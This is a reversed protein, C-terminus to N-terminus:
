TIREILEICMRANHYPCKWFGVRDDVRNAVGLVSKEIREALTKGEAAQAKISWYWEGEPSVIYRKIFRWCERCIDRWWDIHTLQYQNYCGVVTEAQVWWHRDVDLHLNGEDWEYVMGRDRCYGEMAANAMLKSVESCRHILHSDTLVEAAEVILWSAEIDHGYSQITSSPNWNEDFFLQLHGNEAVIKELFIHILNDLQCKLYDDKWVRYLNTYAELIHLHTNMSKADNQDKESLRMDALAGWERDFAELYGDRKKDFSHEEIAYFLRKACELSERDQSARYHESLAYITFAIAYVQKKTDLPNMTSDLSWFVGGHQPDCFKEVIVNRARLAHTLYATRQQESFLSQYRESCALRYASAFTWLIRANLIAGKPADAVINGNGDIRGYYGGRPDLVREMWYPLINNTLECLLEIKLQQM